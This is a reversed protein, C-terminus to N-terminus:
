KDLILCHKLIIKRLRSICLHFSLSLEHIQELDCSQNSVIPILGCFEHNESLAKPAYLYKEFIDYLM